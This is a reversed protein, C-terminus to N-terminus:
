QQQMELFRTREENWRAALSEQAAVEANYGEIALQRDEDPLEENDTIEELCELLENSETMYEQIAGQTAVMQEMTAGEAEPVTPPEPFECGEADALQNLRAENASQAAAVGAYGFALLTIFPVITLPTRPIM